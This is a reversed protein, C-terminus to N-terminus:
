PLKPPGSLPTKVPAALGIFKTVTNSGQNSVWINGSADLALAYAEILQADAGFGTAPSLSSGPASASAGALETLSPARYNAVWINGAGDVAIGQPHDITGLGTYAMKSVITGTSSIMSVSAGYFNAIWVNNSQDIAIGAAGECCSYSTFSSGDPAVKTVNTDSLNGVWGFHNADVAVVVPFAFSPTTYGAAVSLPQGSSNLLTVHSNGYDVVWATGNPDIAVSLPYNLGGAIYGSPGAASTGTPTIVSVSGIGDATYPQENPIWANDSPDIALGYSNNLGFGTIGNAFVPAGIPSFKSAYDFYNAVWVSGTSDVGLGSPSNLGAGSYTIFLTWDTPAATLAPTYASSAKSLTYLTAVNSAPSRVLDYVADLTNTPVSGSTGVANFFAGCASASVVCANVLNAITNIRATPAIANSPMTSGPVAGTAPDALTVATAFANTLGTLNTSSAGIGGASSYFQALAEISAVTTAEDIMVKTSATVSSCPGIATMLMADPNATSAGSVTGGSSVLYLLSTTAPCNYSVPVTATGTSDTTIISSVLSTAASGNGTTGAAYLSLTAGAIPKGGALVALTFPIGTTPPPTSNGGSLTGGSGCGALAVAVVPLLALILQRAKGTSPCM